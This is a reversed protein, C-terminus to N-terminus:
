AINSPRGFLGQFHLTPEDNKCSTGDWFQSIASVRYYGLRRHVNGRFNIHGWKGAPEQRTLVFGGARTGTLQVLRAAMHQRGRGQPDVLVRVPEPLASAKVPRESHHVAWVDFLEVIQRRHPHDEDVPDRRWASAKVQALFPEAWM